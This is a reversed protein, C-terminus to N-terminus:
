VEKAALQGCAGDIEQGRTDRLTVALGADGLRRLFEEQAEPRSATWRSGPVPNLPIPNVHVWGTGYQCLRDALQTARWAQDNVDRMLAYEISVRRGTARHYRHAAALTAAVGFRRNVPVLHNRASDDPAHLSLALRVPMGEDALRDM